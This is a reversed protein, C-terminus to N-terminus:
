VLDLIYQGNIATGLKKARLPKPVISRHITGTGYGGGRMLGRSAFLVMTLYRGLRMAADDM